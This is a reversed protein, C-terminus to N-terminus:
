NASGARSALRRARFTLAEAVRQGHAQRLSREAREVPLEVHDRVARSIGPPLRAGRNQERSYLPAADAWRGTLAYLDALPREGVGPHQQALASLTAEAESLRDEEILFLAYNIWALTDDRRIAEQYLAEARTTDGGDTLLQALNNLGQVDGADIVEEYLAQARAHQAPDRGLLNAFNLRVDWGAALSAEYLRRAEDARGTHLLYSGLANIADTLLAPMASELTAALETDSMEGQLYLLCDEFEGDVLGSVFQTASSVSTNGVSRPEM